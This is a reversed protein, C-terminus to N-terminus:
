KLILQLFAVDLWRGFKFGTEKLIGSLEFGENKHLRISIENAADIVGVMVHYDQAKAHIIIEKLLTKGLGLRRYDKHVYVSHEVTFKYGPRARFVGYTSFGMLQGNENYAGIIPYNGAKKDAFWQQMWDMDLPDFYYLATTNLISENFIELIAALDDRNCAKIVPNM